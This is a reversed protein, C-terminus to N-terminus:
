RTFIAYRKVRAEGLDVVVSPRLTAAYRDATAKNRHSTLRTYVKGRYTITKQAPNSAKIM